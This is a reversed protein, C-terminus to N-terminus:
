GQFKNAKADVKTKNGNVYSAYKKGAQSNGGGTNYRSLAKNKNGNETKLCWKYHAIGTEIHKKVNGRFQEHWLSNLQFYGYDTSNGNYNQANKVFSSESAVLAIIMKYDVSEKNSIKIMYALDNEDPSYKLEKLAWLYKSLEKENAEKLYEKTQFMGTNKKIEEALNM